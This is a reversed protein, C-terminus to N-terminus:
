GIQPLTSSVKFHITHAPPSIPTDETSNKEDGGDQTKLEGLTVKKGACLRLFAAGDSDLNEHLLTSLIFDSFRCFEQCMGPNTAATWLSKLTPTKNDKVVDKLECVRSVRLAPQSKRTSLRLEECLGERWTFASGRERFPNARMQMMQDHCADMSRLHAQSTDAFGELTPNFWLYAARGYAGIADDIQILQQFQEKKFSEYQSWLQYQGRDGSFLRKAQFLLGRKRSGLVSHDISMVFGLDCKSYKNEIVGSHDHTEFTVELDVGADSNRLDQRAQSLSYELVHQSTWGEDMLECLLFTLNPEAIKAGCSMRRAIASSVSDLYRWIIRQEREPM